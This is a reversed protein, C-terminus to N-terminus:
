WKGYAKKLLALHIPMPMLGATLGGQSDFVSKAELRVASLLLSATHVLTRGGGAGDGFKGCIGGSKRALHHNLLKRCNTISYLSTKLNLSPV